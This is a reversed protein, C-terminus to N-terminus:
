RVLTTLLPLPPSPNPSLLAVFRILLSAFYLLRQNFWPLSFAPNLSLTHYHEYLSLLHLTIRDISDHWWSSQSWFTAFATESQGVLPRWAGALSSFVTVPLMVSKESARGAEAMNLAGVLTQFM